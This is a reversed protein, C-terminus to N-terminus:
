QPKKEIRVGLWKNNYYAVGYLSASKITFGMPDVNFNKISIKGEMNWKFTLQGITFDFTKGIKSVNKELFEEKSLIIENPNPIIALYDQKITPDLKGKLWDFIEKYMKALDNSTVKIQKASFGPISFALYTKNTVPLNNLYEKAWNDSEYRSDWPNTNGNQPIPMPTNFDYTIGDWGLVMKDCTTKKWIGIGNKKQFKVKANIYAFLIFNRSSFKFKVRHNSDFYRYYSATFGIAKGILKGVLTKGNSVVHTEIDRTASSSANNNSGTSSGYGGSYEITNDRAEVFTAYRYVGDDVKYLYPKQQTEPITNGSELKKALQDVQNEKDPTYMFTGNPTIRYVTNEVQVENKNNLVSAFAPDDVLTDSVGATGEKMTSEFRNYNGEGLMSKLVEKPKLNPNIKMVKITNGFADLSNFKLRGNVVSINKDPKVTPVMENKNCSTVLVAAIITITIGFIIKHTLKKM